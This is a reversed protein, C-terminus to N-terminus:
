NEGLFFFFFFSLFFIIFLFINNESNEANQGIQYGLLRSTPKPRPFQNM